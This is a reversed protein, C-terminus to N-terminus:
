AAPLRHARRHLEARQTWLINQYLRNLKPDSCEFENALPTDSGLAVGTVAELPPKEDVGTVEVYQFGHFTQRPQWIEEGEGTCTYRDICARSRLNTTYLTGDPNLREAYRLQVQQGKQGRMNLRAVGAMNQGIDYVYVGPPTRQRVQRPVRRNRRGAPRSAVRDRALGRRRRRRAASKDVAFGPKDWGPVERTADYEEGILMDAM